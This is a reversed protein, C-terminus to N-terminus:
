GSILLERRCNKLYRVSNYCIEDKLLYVNSATITIIHTQVSRVNEIKVTVLGFHTCMLKMSKHVETSKKENLLMMFHDFMDSVNELVGNKSKKFKIKTLNYSM